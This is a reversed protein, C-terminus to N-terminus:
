PQRRFRGKEIIRMLGNEHAPCNPDIATKLQVFAHGAPHITLIRACRTRTSPVPKLVGCPLREMTLYGEDWYITMGPQFVSLKARPM